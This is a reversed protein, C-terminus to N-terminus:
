GRLTRIEATATYLERSEAAFQALSRTFLVKNLEIRQGEDGQQHVSIANQCDAATVSLRALVNAYSRQMVEDPIPPASRAAQVGSGLSACELRLQSYLGTGAVQSLDGLQTTVASLAAGSLGASWRLIQGKLESPYQLATKAIGASTMNPGTTSSVVPPTPQASRVTAASSGDGVVAHGTQASPSSFAALLVGTAIAVLGVATGVVLMLRPEYGTARRVRAWGPPRGERDDLPKPPQHRGSTM